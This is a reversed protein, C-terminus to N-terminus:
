NWVHSDSRENKRGNEFRERGHEFNDMSRSNSLSTSTAAVSIPNTGGLHNVSASKTTVIPLKLTEMQQLLFAVTHEKLEGIQLELTHSRENAAFLERM